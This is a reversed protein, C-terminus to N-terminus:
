YLYKTLGVKIEPFQEIITCLHSTGYILDDYEIKKIFQNYYDFTIYKREQQFLDNYKDTDEMLIYYTLYITREVDSYYSGPMARNVSAYPRAIM